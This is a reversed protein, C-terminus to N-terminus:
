RVRRAIQAETDHGKAESEYTEAMSTLVTTAVFPHSLELAAAWRRYTNALGREQAGGEGRFHAGRANYRAVTMGRSIDKSQIQEIVQRVPECPWM